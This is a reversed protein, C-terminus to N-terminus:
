HTEDRDRGRGVMSGLATLVLRRRRQGARGEESQEGRVGDVVTDRVFNMRLSDEEFDWRVGSGLEAGVEGLEPGHKGLRVVTLKANGRRRTM